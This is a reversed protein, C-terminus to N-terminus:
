LVQMVASSEAKVSLLSILALPMSKAILGVDLLLIIATAACGGGCGKDAPTSTRPM